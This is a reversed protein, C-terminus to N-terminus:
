KTPGILADFRGLHEAARDADHAEGADSDHYRYALYEVVAVRYADDLDVDKALDTIAAYATLAGDADLRCEPRETYLLSLVQNLVPLYDEKDSWTKKDVDNTLRRADKIVDNGTFSM